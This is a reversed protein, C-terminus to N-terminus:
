GIETVTMCGFLVDLTATRDLRLERCSDPCLLVRSGDESWHWGETCSPDSDMLILKQSGDSHQLIVNVNGPDLEQGEPPVPLGYDCPVVQEAIDLLAQSLGAAYDAEDVMDFHCYNDVHNCGEPSTGGAEAAESLWPRADEDVKVTKESGPAGIVFTGVADGLANAIEEIIPAEDVAHEPLGDGVCQLSYTPQGDTLLVVYRSGNLSTRNLADLAVQLADHTPTGSDDLPITDLAAALADRQDSNAAGLIDVPVIADVNICDSSMRPIQSPTTKVYPFLLLGVGVTDPLADIADLLVPQTAEWKTRTPDSPDPQKMSTSVDVVFMLLPSQPEAEGTWGTCAADRLQQARADDVDQTGGQYAGNAGGEGGICFGGPCGPYDCVGNTCYGSACQNARECEEGGPRDTAEGGSDGSDNSCASMAGLACLASLVISAGIRTLM